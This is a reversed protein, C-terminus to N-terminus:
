FQKLFRLDGSNFLRIDPIKYKLQALRTLGLGFAFGQWEKPSIKCNKLVQPHIMGAGILEIWGEEKCFSCGKGDCLVCFLDVEFSPETFPFFSPRLRIKIKKEFFKRLFEEIIAKFNAVSIDKDLMLGDIQWFEIEHSVDTAESRFVKGPCIIKLPPQNKELYHIDVSTTHSRMLGGSKLYFTKGLSLIDRAPHDPPINLADFNHWEDEIEPGEIIEFGMSQFIKEVKRKVLTIPHLHGLELRKGPITIDFTEKKEKFKFSEKIEKERKKLASILFNKFENVKRGLSVRKKKPLRGLKKTIKTIKGKKGLFKEYIEELEKLTKAKKIEKKLKKKLQSFNVKRMKENLYKM